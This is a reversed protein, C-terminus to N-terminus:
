LAFGLVFRKRQLQEVFTRVQEAVDNNPEINFLPCIADLLASVNGPEEQLKTILVAYLPSIGFFEVNGTQLHRFILVFHTGPESNQMLEMPKSRHVPYELQILRFEPNLVLVDNLLDGDDKFGPIKEDPMTHVEIELWEFYLLDKLFPYKEKLRSPTLSFFQYLEEPLRWISTTSCHHTSFFHHVLSDWEEDNLFSRTIPFAGSFTDDIINYVLRRYHHVRNPTIGPLESLENTRCYQALNSQITYTNKTLSM